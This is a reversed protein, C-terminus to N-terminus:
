HWWLAATTALLTGVTCLGMISRQPWRAGELKRLRAEHDSVQRIVPDLKGEVQVLKVYVDVLTPGPPATSV